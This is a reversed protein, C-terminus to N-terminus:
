RALVRKKLFKSFSDAAKGNAEVDGFAEAIIEGYKEESKISRYAYSSISKLKDDFADGKLGLLEMEKKHTRLYARGDTTKSWDEFAKLVTRERQVEVFRSRESYYKTGANKQSWDFGKDFEDYLSARDILHAAEHAAMSKVNANAHIPLDDLAKLASNLEDATMRFYQPNFGLRLYDASISMIGSASTEIGDFRSWVSIRDGVTREFASFAEAVTDINL